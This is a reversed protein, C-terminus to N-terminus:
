RIVAMYNRRLIQTSSFTKQRFGCYMMHGSTVSTICETIVM